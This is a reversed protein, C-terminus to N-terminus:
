RAFLEEVLEAEELESGIASDSELRRGLDLREDVDGDFVLLLNWRNL